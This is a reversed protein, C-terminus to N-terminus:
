GVVSLVLGAILGCAALGAGIAAHRPAGEPHRGRAHGALVLAAIAFVPTIAMWFALLSLAALVGLILARQASAAASDKALTRRVTAGFVIWSLIAVTASLVLSVRWAPGDNTDRIVLFVTMAASLLVAALAPRRVDTYTTPSTVTAHTM